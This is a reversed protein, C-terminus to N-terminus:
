SSDRMRQRNEQQLRVEPPIELDLIHQLFETTLFHIVNDRDPLKSPKQRFTYHTCAASSAKRHKSRGRICHGCDLPACYEEDLYYHQVFHVCYECTPVDM